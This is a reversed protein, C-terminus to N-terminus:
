RVVLVDCNSTHLVRTPVTGLFMEKLKSHHGRCGLVVLDFGEETVSSMIYQEPNSDTILRTEISIGEAEFAEKTSNLIRLGENQIDTLLTNYIDIPVFEVTPSSQAVLKHLISHFTVVQSISGSKVLEIIRAEARKAYESGDTAFIAKLYVNLM